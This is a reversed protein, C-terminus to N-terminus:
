RLTSEDHFSSSPTHYITARSRTSTMTGFHQSRDDAHTEPEHFQANPHSQSSSSSSTRNILISQTRPSQPIPASLPFEHDDEPIDLADTPGGNVELHSYHESIGDAHESDHGSTSPILERLFFEAERRSVPLPDSSSPENGESTSLDIKNGVVVCCYDEAEEDMVPARDKFENWWRRLGQLTEPKNVDYVLIVADAGRFFAVALSSFREQGATDKLLSPIFVDSFRCCCLSKCEGM